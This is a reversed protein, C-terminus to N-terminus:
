PFLHLIRKSSLDGYFISNIDRIRIIVSEIRGNSRRWKVQLIRGVDKETLFDSYRIVKNNWDRNEGYLDRIKDTIDEEDLLAVKLEPKNEM